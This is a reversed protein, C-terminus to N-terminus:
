MAGIVFLSDEQGGPFYSFEIQQNSSFFETITDIDDQKINKGGFAVLTSYSALRRPSLSVQLQELLHDRARITLETNKIKDLVKCRKKFAAFTEEFMSSALKFFTNIFGNCEVIFFNKYLSGGWWIMNKLMEQIRKDACYFVVNNNEYPELLKKLEEEKVTYDKPLPFAADAGLRELLLSSQDGHTFCIVAYDFHKKRKLRSFEPTEFLDDVKTYVLKGLKQFEHIVRDPTNTHIHVKLVNEIIAIAASDGRGKLLNSYYDKDKQESLYVSFETCYRFFTLPNDADIYRKPLLPSEHCNFYPEEEYFSKKMGDIVLYFGLAGSDVVNNSELLKMQSHTELVSLFINHSFIRFFNEFTKEESNSFEEIAKKAGERMVTLMTGEMPNVVAAYAVQYAHVIAKLFDEITIIEKERLYESLGLFYQSLIFGSNGYSNMSMSEAFSSLTSGAKETESTSLLGRQFTRKMNSGTDKDSVPFTNIDNLYSENFSLSTFAVRLMHYLYSGDIYNVQKITM